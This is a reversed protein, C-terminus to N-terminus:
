ILAIGAGQQNPSSLLESIQTCAAWSCLLTWLGPVPVRAKMVLCSPLPFDANATSGPLIVKM